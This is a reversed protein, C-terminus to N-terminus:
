VIDAYQHCIEIGASLIRNKYEDINDEYHIVYLRQFLDRNEMLQQYFTHVQQVRDFSCDHVVIEFEKARNAVYEKSFVTDCTLLLDGFGIDFSMMGNVHHTPQSSFEVGDVAFRGNHAIVNFYDDIELRGVQTHEIGARISEWFHEVLNRHIYLNIKRGLILRKKLALEEIGGIHDAHLHSVFLHDVDLISMGITELSKSATFGCDILLFEKSDFEVIFNTNFFRRGFATGVGIPFARM